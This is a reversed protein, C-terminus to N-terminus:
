CSGSGSSPAARRPRSPGCPRPRSSGCCRGAGRFSGVVAFLDLSIAVAAALTGPFFHNHLEPFQFFQDTCQRDDPRGASLRAVCGLLGGALGVTLGFKLFHAFIQRDSYGLAKLTGVVTRQQEALRSLLVNLVMAAVALFIAPMFLGFTALGEIEQSLYKNSPQDALPTTTFVGYPSLMQEARRLVEQPVRGEADPTM